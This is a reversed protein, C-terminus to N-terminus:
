LGRAGPEALEAGYQQTWRPKVPAALLGFTITRAKDIVTPTNILHIRLIVQGNERIVQLNSTKADWGWNKDNEAFWCLGRVATGLYIYPCFNKIYDDCALKSADWVVGDGAPVEQAVAARIRDANAHILTASDNSFPIDLTLDNVPKGQTPQLTLEVRVTGDYDWTDKYNARLAGASFGGEVIATDARATTM